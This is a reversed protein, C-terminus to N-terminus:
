YAYRDRRGAAPAPSSTSATVPSAAQATGATTTAPGSGEAAQKQRNVTNTYLDGLYKGCDPFSGPNNVVAETIMVAAHEPSTKFLSASQRKILAYAATWSVEHSNGSSRMSCYVRAGKAGPSSIDVGQALAPGSWWSAGALLALALLRAPQLRAMPDLHPTAGLTVITAGSM